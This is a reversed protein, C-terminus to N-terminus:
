GEELFLDAIEIAADYPRTENQNTLLILTLEEEPFYMMVNRFGITEGSHWLMRRGDHESVRWGFGYFVGPVDTKVMPSTAEAAHAASVITGSHFARTWILMEDISSYIGGDGLVASTVSQDTRVWRGDRHSYGYARDPVESIGNQFAVSNTMGLPELVRSDLYQAFSVGSVREVLLALLAYATNSYQYGTGPEFYLDPREVVYRLVDADSLQGVTADPILDEYDVIGSTHTLLHRITIRGYSAALEPLYSSIPDEISIRGAEALQLVSAATFQKTISALRYNTAPSAAIGNELDASGYSRRVLVEGDRAVLLSAGPVPSGASIGPTGMLGAIIRNIRSDM